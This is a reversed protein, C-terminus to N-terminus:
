SRVEEAAGLSLLRERLRELREITATRRVADGDEGAFPCTDRSLNDDSCLDIAEDLSMVFHNWVCHSVLDVAPISELLSDLDVGLDAAKIIVYSV